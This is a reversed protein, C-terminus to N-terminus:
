NDGAVPVASWDRNENLTVGRYVSVIETRMENVGMVVKFREPRSRKSVAM